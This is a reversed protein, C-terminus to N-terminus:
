GAGGNNNRGTDIGKVPAPMGMVRRLLDILQRQEGPDLAELNMRALANDEDSHDRPKGVGRELVASIAMLAVRSDDDDMLKILRRSAELSHQTCLKRVQQYEGQVGCPNGSVGKQWPRLWGGNRRIVEGEPPVTRAATAQSRRGVTKDMLTGHVIPALIARSSPRVSAEVDLRRDAELFKALRGACRRRIRNRAACRACAYVAAARDVFLALDLREIAGLGAQGSPAAEM